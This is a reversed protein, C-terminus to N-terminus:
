LPFAHIEYRNSAPAACRLDHFHLSVTPTCVPLPADLTAPPVSNVAVHCSSSEPSLSTDSILRFAPDVDSRPLQSSSASPSLLSDTSAECERLHLAKRILSDDGRTFRGRLIPGHAARAVFKGAPSAPATTPRSIPPASPYGVTDSLIMPATTPRQIFGFVKSGAPDGLAAEFAQANSPTHRGHLGYLRSTSSARERTRLAVRAQARRLAEENRMVNNTCESMISKYRIYEYRGHSHQM